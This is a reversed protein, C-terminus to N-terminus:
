TIFLTHLSREYQMAENMGTIRKLPEKVHSFMMFVHGQSLHPITHDFQNPRLNAVVHTLNTIHPTRARLFIFNCVRIPFPQADALDAFEVM